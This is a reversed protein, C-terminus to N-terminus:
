AAKIGYLSFTTGSAWSSGLPFVTISTIAATNRSLGVSLGTGTAANNMRSIVTKFTSANTYNNIHSIANGQSASTFYDHYGLQMANANTFRVTATSSGNGGVTTASYTTTSVGNFRMMLQSNGTSTGQTILVLDTYTQPITSFTVTATTTGLTQSAIAEYTKAM